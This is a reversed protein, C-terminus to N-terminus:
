GPRYGCLQIRTAVFAESMNRVYFEPPDFRFVLSGRGARGTFIVADVTMTSGDPQVTTTIGWDNLEPRANNTNTYVNTTFGQQTSFSESMFGVADVDFQELTINEGGGSLGLHECRLRRGHVLRPAGCEHAEGTWPQSSCIAPRPPDVNSHIAGPKATVTATSFTMLIITPVFVLLRLSRM